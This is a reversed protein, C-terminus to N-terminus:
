RITSQFAVAKGLIRLDGLEDPLYVLPSYDPNAPMLVLRDAYKYVKKLTAEGDILVVAIEGNEVDPQARVFVIDGDMIRADIMSDGKARLCFDAHISGNAEIYTDIEEQAEIPAGCAIDGLLPYRRTKVSLIGEVQYLGKQPDEEWGMLYAPSTKLAKALLEIKDSPINSIIGTEYRQITAKSVGVAVGLEELTYKLALRLTKIRNGISSM